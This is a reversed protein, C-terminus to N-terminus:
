CAYPRRHRIQRNVLGAVAIVGHPINNAIIVIRKPSHKITAYAYSATHLSSAGSPSPPTSRWTRRHGHRGAPSRTPHPGKATRTSSPSALTGWPGGLRGVGEPLRTLLGSQELVTIDATPGPMSEAVDVIEGTLEDVAIQSKLTHQKKKGSYYPDADCRTRPRQVRQQFSDIVM